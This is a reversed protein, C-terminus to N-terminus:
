PEGPGAPQDLSAPSRSSPPAETATGRHPERLSSGRRSARDADRKQKNAFYSEIEKVTGEDVLADPSSSGGPEPARAPRIGYKAEADEIVRNIATDYRARQEPTMEIIGSTRPAHRTAFAVLLMLNVVIVGVNALVARRLLREVNPLGGDRARIIAPTLSNGGYLMILIGFIIALAQVGVMIGRYEHYCLPGAVFAPLAIAGSMAGWLYFRPFVARAFGGAPDARVTKFLIPVLAFAFFVCSGLWTSLAALYVSDFLALLTRSTV